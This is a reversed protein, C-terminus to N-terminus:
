PGFFPRYIIYAIPGLLADTWRSFARYALHGTWGQQYSCFFGSSVCQYSCFTCETPVTMYGKINMLACQVQSYNSVSGLMKGPFGLSYGLMKGPLVWATVWCRGLAFGAHEGPAGLRNGRPMGFIDLSEVLCKGLEYGPELM